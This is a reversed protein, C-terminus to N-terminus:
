PPGSPGRYGGRTAPRCTGTSRPDADCRERVRASARAAAQPHRPVANGIGAVYRTSLVEPLAAENACRSSSGAPSRAGQDGVRVAAHRRATTWYLPKVGLRDRVLLLRRRPADWIAFAFMGRFRHVCDDGWQEYAHVITETDSKRGTSTATRRSSVGCTPTTTSRATSRRGLRHRGREVAAAAGLGPRRHESPPARPHRPPRRHLGAEDPGRHILADRMALARARADPALGDRSVLGAIGCM